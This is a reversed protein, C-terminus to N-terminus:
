QMPVLGEWRVDWDNPFGPNTGVHGDWGTCMMAVATLLGGNGPLYLRLRGDQYNHGNHLYTNKQMPMLLANVADNPRGLRAATMATMPFDWGWSTPWNWNKLIWDLTKNMVRHNILVNDPLVGFAALLAPHDSTMRLNTYTDTASEAALYLSDSNFALPSLKAVIDDWKVNRPKGQRERWENAVQLAYHWYSLEYPPNITTAAKLTEQAPICGRLVYRNKAKDYEAFSEMFEATQEVLEGYKDLYKRGPSTRYLEEALYILHPQQWILYSGINSPAEQGSPDTMKMWRVGAFGQRQAIERAVPEVKKYWSLSRDLIEPHGWLAFQAQHWWIMELHFKGFWSNYTLGTEQPPTNGGDNVALLYQSLVVRRELERARPDAVRSFDVIAGTNWYNNWFASTVAEQTNFDTSNEKIADEAFEVNFDLENDKSALILKNRGVKKLSAKGIWGVRVYYVTQDITRRLLASNATQSVITTNHLKDKTWDCADDSHGGTPYAFRIVVKPKASSEILSAIRGGDPACVTQVHYNDKGYTFRSDIAGNWMDLTENINKVESPNSLALGVTGLHLRHPNVRLWESADHQRGPTSFQASYLEKRGRGFDKAELADTPVYHNPNAFSHWGWDSMTGLPVGKAYLEPFTQLGTADVTMAFHGNGVTLSQLSDLITVKPNNRSIVTKRDISGANACLPLLLTLIAMLSQKLRNM